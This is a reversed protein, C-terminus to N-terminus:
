FLSFRSFAHVPMQYDAVDVAVPKGELGGKLIDLIFRGAALQNKQSVEDITTPVTLLHQLVNRIESVLSVFHGGEYAVV